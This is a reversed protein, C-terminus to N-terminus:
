ESFDHRRTSVHVIRADRKLWMITAANLSQGLRLSHVIDERRVEIYADLAFSQYLRVLDDQVSRGPFGLFVQLDPLQGPDPVLLDVFSPLVASAANTGEETM